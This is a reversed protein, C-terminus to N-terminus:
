KKGPYLERLTREKMRIDAIRWGNATKVLDLTVSQAEGFNKFTVTGTAKSAGDMTTKIALDTIEFDQADVFPDGDLEPVEGRKAAAAQDAIMAGALDAAFYRRITAPKDLVIGKAGKGRYAQYIADLFAQPTGSEAALAPAAAALALVLAALARVTSTM